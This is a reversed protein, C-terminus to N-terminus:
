IVSFACLRVADEFTAARGAEILQKVLKMKDSSRLYEPVIADYPALEDLIRKRKRQLEAIRGELEKHRKRLADEKESIRWNYQDRQRRASSGGFLLVAGGIALGIFNFVYIVDSDLASVAVFFGIILALTYIGGAIVLFKWFFRFASYRGYSGGARERAIMEESNAIEKAIRELEVYRSILRDAVDSPQLSEEAAKAISLTKADEALSHGCQNCFAADDKLKKGCNSCFPM